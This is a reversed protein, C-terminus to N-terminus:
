TPRPLAAVLPGYAPERRQYWCTSRVSGNSTVLLTRGDRRTRPATPARPAWPQIGSPRFPRQEANDTM